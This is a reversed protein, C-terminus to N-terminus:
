CSRKCYEKIFIRRREDLMAKLSGWEENQALDSENIERLRIRYLKRILEIAIPDAKVFAEICKEMEKEYKKAEAANKLERLQQIKESM